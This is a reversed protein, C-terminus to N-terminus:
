DIPEGEPGKQKSERERERERENQYVLVCLCVRMSVCLGGVFANVFISHIICKECVCVCV